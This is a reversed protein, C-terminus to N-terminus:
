NKALPIKVAARYAKALENTAILKQVLIESISQYIFKGIRYNLLDELDKIRDFNFVIFQCETKATVNATCATYGAISMEGFVEGRSSVERVFSNDVTITARGDILFYLDRNIDGQSLIVQDQHFTQLHCFPAIAEILHDDFNVFFPITKFIDTEIM